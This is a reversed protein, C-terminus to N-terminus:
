QVNKGGKQNQGRVILGLAIVGILLLFICCFGLLSATLWLPPATRTPATGPSTPNEYSSTPIATPTAQLASSPAGSIPVITPVFTPTPQVTPQASVAAPKAGIAARWADELGEIDFGYTQQLADDVTNGDRLAVLLSNMKDQGYTEILFKVISYSQSYSLLAKDAIESFGASLSRVTLLTNNQIADDLQQQSQEDLDGESYVALGENLWTPVDGLCSFTLHGVLVHTLEHVVTDQDWDTDSQSVGMIVINEEPYAQGGTWSPEYLTADRMDEYNPYIYLDIPSDTVLGAQTENRKLGELGANLMRQAFAQDKGYWHLRLKGNTLTQWDHIDDLWTASKTESLTEKGNADTTRWRWWLTTGPPLSGSQRMDWTWEANVTKAPTFQPFAKAIVEGCTQQQNGYELVVSQIESDSSLTASFTATEPFDFVVENDTVTAPPPAFATSAAFLSLSLFLTFITKRM